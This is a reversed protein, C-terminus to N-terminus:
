VSVGGAQAQVMTPEVPETARDEIVQMRNIVKHLKFQEVAECHEKQLPAGNLIPQLTKDFLWSPIFGSAIYPILTAPETRGEDIFPNGILFRELTKGNLVGGPPRAAALYQEMAGIDRRDIMYDGVQPPQTPLQWRNSQYLDVCYQMVDQYGARDFIGIPKGFKPDSMMGQLMLYITNESVTYYDRTNFLEGTAMEVVDRDKRPVHSLAGKLKFFDQSLSHGLKMMNNSM